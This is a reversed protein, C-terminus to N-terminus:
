RPGRHAVEDAAGLRPASGSQQSVSRGSLLAPFQLHTVRGAPADLVALAEAPVLGRYVILCRSPRRRLNADLEGLRELMVPSGKAQALERARALVDHGEPEDGALLLVWAHCAFANM